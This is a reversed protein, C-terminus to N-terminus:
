DNSLRSIVSLSVSKLGRILVITDLFGHSKRYLQYCLLILVTKRQINVFKRFGQLICVNVENVVKKDSRYMSFNYMDTPKM